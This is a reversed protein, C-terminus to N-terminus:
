PAARLCHDNGQWASCRPAPTKRYARVNHNYFSFALGCSGVSLTILVQQLIVVAAQQHRATFLQSKASYSM